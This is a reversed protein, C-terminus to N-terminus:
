AELIKKNLLLWSTKSLRADVFQLRIILAIRNYQQFYVVTKVAGM